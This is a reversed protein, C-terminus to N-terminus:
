YVLQFILFHIWQMIEPLLCIEITEYIVGQRPHIMDPFVLESFDIRKGQVATQLSAKVTFKPTLNLHYSYALSAMSTSLRGDGAVDYLVQAGIGGGLADFHQDYSVAYTVFPTNLSAWQNRYNMSFRAGKATGAFAPNLYLPNAYFQTFEPDQASASFSLVILGLIFLKKM